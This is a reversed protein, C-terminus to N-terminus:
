KFSLLHSELTVLDLLVCSFTEFFKPVNILLTRGKRIAENAVLPSVRTGGAMPGSQTGSPRDFDRAIKPTGCNESAITNRAGSNPAGPLSADFMHAGEQLSSTNSEHSMGVQSGSSNANYEYYEVRYEDQCGAVYVDPIFDIVFPDDDEYPVSYLNDPASPASNGWMLHCKMIEIPDKLGSFKSIIDVNQGATALIEVNDNYIAYHPNTTCNFTTFMCSQPFMCPHFPQQPMLHSSPDSPGPMVDVHITKSLQAFFDDMHKAAQVSNTYQKVQRSQKMKLIIEDQAVLDNDDDTFRSEHLSNGAVLIRSVRSSRAEDSFKAGGWIFDIMDQLARTLDVKKDMEHHFGLDSVILLYCASAQVKLPTEPAGTLHQLQTDDYLLERNPEAFCIDFVMFQGGDDIPCGLLAVIIGTVFQKPNINGVLHISEEHDELVLTDDQSTYHGLYRECKVHINGKSLENVVDPQLKMRKFITGIVICRTALNSGLTRNASSPTEVELYRQAALIPSIFELEDDSSMPHADQQNQTSTQPQEADTRDSRSLKRLRKKFTYNCSLEDTAGSRERAPSIREPDVLEDPLTSADFTDAVESLSYIPINQDWKSRCNYELFPKTKELRKRYYRDYQKSFDCDLLFRANEPQYNVHVRRQKVEQTM